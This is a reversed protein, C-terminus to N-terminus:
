ENNKGLKRKIYKKIRFLYIRLELFRHKRGCRDCGVKFDIPMGQCGCEYGNCCMEPTLGIGGCEVCKKRNYKHNGYYCYQMFSVYDNM